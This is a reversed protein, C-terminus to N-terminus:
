DGDKEKRYNKKSTDVEKVCFGDKALQDRVFHPVDKLQTLKHKLNYM